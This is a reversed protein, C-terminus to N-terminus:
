LVFDGAVLSTTSHVNITFDAVGDGGVDGQLKYENSGLSSIVLQGAVHTFAAALVFANDAGGTVADMASLDIKDGEAHSFDLIHDGAATPSDGAAFYIFRDAGAGGSLADAGTGGVLSDDGTGGSLSDAGIGGVISNALMNGTGTFDGAGTYVLNEINGFLTYSPMSARVTDTGGGANETISAGFSSLVYVDNGAGGALTDAGGGGVLTDDGAGGLIWNAQADGVGYFSGAGAYVLKEINGSLVYSSATANVTDAGGSVGEVIVDNPSDVVYLDDGQGGVLTDAQSGGDLTDNGGGGSLTDAGAGGSLSDAGDGGNLTDPGDMGFLTDNGDAGSLNNVGASGILVNNLANGTINVALSAAATVTASEVNDPLVYTGPSTFAVQVLDVGEGTNEQVVDGSSDVVYVDAGQGGVLTDAGWGGDLTDNGSGGSLLDLGGQGFLADHGALGSITDAGAAGYLSDNNATGPVTLSLKAALDISQRNGELYLFQGNDGVFMDPGTSTGGGVWAPMAFAGVQAWTQVDYARLLNNTIDWALLQHAGPLFATAAAIYGGKYYDTIERVLYGTFDLVRLASDDYAILGAAESISVSGYVAGSLYNFPTESTIGTLSDYVYIASPSFYQDAVVVYRDNESSFMRGASLYFSGGSYNVGAPNSLSFVGVDTFGSLAYDANYVVKNDPTIALSYVGYRYDELATAPYTTPLPLQIPTFSLDSVAIKEFRLPQGTSGNAEGAVLYTHDASLALSTLNTGVHASLATSGSEANWKYVYGTSTSFYVYRSTPDAVMATINNVGFAASRDAM